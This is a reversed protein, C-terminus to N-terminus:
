LQVSARGILHQPLRPVAGIGPFVLIPVLPNDSYDVFSVTVTLLGSASDFVVQINQNAEGLVAEHATTPLWNLLEGVVNRVRPVVGNQIYDDTSGFETSEVAVASRAGSAAAHQFAQLMLLPMSYSVIAYFLTFFIVFLLAAEIAASGRQIRLSISLPKIHPRQRVAQKMSLKSM